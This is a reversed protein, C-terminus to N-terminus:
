DYDIVELPTCIEMENYGELINVAKVERRTKLKVMHEMNWSIVIDMKHVVAAAIHLADDRYKIPFIGQALYQDALALSEETVQLIEIPYTKILSLLSRKRAAPAAGIERLVLESIHAAFKGQKIEMFLDKTSNEKEIDRKEFFFNLVSTDLYINNRKM